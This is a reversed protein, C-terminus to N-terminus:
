RPRRPRAEIQETATTMIGAAALHAARGGGCASTMSRLGGSMRGLNEGLAALDGGGSKEVRVHDSRGGRGERRVRRVLADGRRRERNKGSTAVNEQSSSCPTSPRLWGRRIDNAAASGGRQKM